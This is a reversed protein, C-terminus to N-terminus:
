RRSADRRRPQRFLRNSVRDNVFYLDPRGDGDYDLVAIGLADEDGGAPDRPGRGDTM